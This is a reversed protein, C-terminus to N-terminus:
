NLLQSLIGELVNVVISNGGQKWLQMDSNVKSAKICDERDFGMLQWVETPVLKRIRVPNEEVYGLCDVRTTITPMIGNTTEIYKDLTDRQNSSTYSHNIIEGGKVVGRSVLTNCLDTKLSM